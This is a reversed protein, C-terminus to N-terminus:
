DNTNELEDYAEFLCDCDVCIFRGLDKGSKISLKESAGKLYVSKSGCNPCLLKPQGSEIILTKIM